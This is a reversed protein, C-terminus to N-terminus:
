VYRTEGSNVEALMNVLQSTVHSNSLHKMAMMPGRATFDRLFAAMAPDDRFVEASSQLRVLQEMTDPHLLGMPSPAGAGEVFMSGPAALRTPTLTRRAEAPTRKKDSLMARPAHKLQDRQTHPTVGQRPSLAVHRSHSILSDVHPAYAALALALIIRAPVCRATALFMQPSTM